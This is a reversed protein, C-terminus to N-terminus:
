ASFNMITYAMMIADERTGDECKYYGERVGIENFELSEYLAIAGTNSPRVELFVSEAKKEKAKEIIHQMFKKGLGQKREDAAICLNLINVEGVAISTICFAIMKDETDECVWNGYHGAKLCDHFLGESWPFQYGSAEIELVKPLDDKTMKRFRMLDVRSLSDPFSKAYFERDADYVVFEKISKFIKNIM